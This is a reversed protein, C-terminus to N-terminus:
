QFRRKVFWVDRLSFSVTLRHEAEEILQREIDGRHQYAYSLHLHNLGKGLPLGLGLSAAWHGFNNGDIELYSNRYSFGGRLLLAQFGDQYKDKFPAIELGLTGAWTDVYDADAIGGLSSWNEYKTEATLLWNQRHYTLGLGYTLPIRYVGRESDHEELLQSVGNDLEEEEQSWLDTEYQFVAGLTLADEGVPIQWQAGWDFTFGRLTTQSIVTFNGLESPSFFSEQQQIAGFLLNANIGISLRPHLAYANGWFLRNVGGEGENVLQYTTEINELYRESFISYSVKSYPQLGLTTAWKPHPRLWLVLDTLGGDRQGSSEEETTLQRSSVQFGTELIMSIPQRITVYTAPNALNLFADSRLALGAGALGAQQGRGQWNLDGVGYASYPSGGRFQGWLLSIPLLLLLYILSTRM